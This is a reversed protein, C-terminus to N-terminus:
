LSTLGSLFRHLCSSNTSRIAKADPAGKLVLTKCETLLDLKVGGKWRSRASSVFALLLTNMNHQM